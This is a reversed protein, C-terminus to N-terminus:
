QKKNGELASGAQVQSQFLSDYILLMVGIVIASDAVNFIYWHYGLVHFDFFDAVAGYIVRDIANGVAGGIVLGLGLALAVTTARV